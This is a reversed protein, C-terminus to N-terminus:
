NATLLSDAHRMSQTDFESVAADDPTDGSEEIAAANSETDSGRADDSDGADGADGADSTDTVPTDTVPPVPQKHRKAATAKTTRAKPGKSATQKRASMMRNMSNQMRKSLRHELQSFENKLELNSEIQQRLDESPTETMGSVRGTIDDALEKASFIEKTTDTSGASNEKPDFTDSLYHGLIDYFPLLCEIAQIIGRAIYEKAKARNRQLEYGIFGHYFCVPDEFINKCAAEWIKHVFVEKTPIKVELQKKHKPDRKGVSSLIFVHTLFIGRLLTMIWDCQRLVRAVRDDIEDSNWKPVKRLELQFARLVNDDKQGASEDLAKDYMATVDTFIVNKFKLILQSTYQRKAEVLADVNVKNIDIKSM